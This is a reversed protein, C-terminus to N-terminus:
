IIVVFNRVKDFEEIRWVCVKGTADDVFVEEKKVFYTPLKSCVWRGETERKLKQQTHTHNFHSFTFFLSLGPM